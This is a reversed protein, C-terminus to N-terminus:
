QDMQVLHDAVGQLDHWVEIVERMTYKCGSRWPTGVWNADGNDTQDAHVAACEVDLVNIDEIAGWEEVELREYGGDVIALRVLNAPERVAQISKLACAGVVSEM